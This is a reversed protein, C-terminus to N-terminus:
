SGTNDVERCFLAIGQNHPIHSTTPFTAPLPYSYTRTVRVSIPNRTAPSSANRYVGLMQIVCPSAVYTMSGTANHTFVAWYVRNGKLLIPASLTKKYFGTATVNQREFSDILDGPFIFSEPTTGKWKNYDAYIGLAINQGGISLTGVVFGYEKVLYDRGFYHPTAYLYDAAGGWGLSLGGFGFTTWNQIGGLNLHSIISFPSAQSDFLKQRKNM